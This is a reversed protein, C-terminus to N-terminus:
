WGGFSRAGTSHWYGIATVLRGLWVVAGAIAAHVPNELSALLFLPFYIVLFEVNNQHVRQARMYADVQKENLKLSSVLKDNPYLVPAKIGTASRQMIVPIVFILAQQIWFAVAVLLVYGYENPITITSMTTTNSIFPNIHFTATINQYFDQLFSM